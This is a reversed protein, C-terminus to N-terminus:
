AVVVRLVGRVQDLDAGGRLALDDLEVPPRHLAIQDNVDVDCQSRHAAPGLRNGDPQGAVAAQPMVVVHVGQPM